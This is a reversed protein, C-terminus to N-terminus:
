LGKGEPPTFDRLNPYASADVPPTTSSGFLNLTRLKPCARADPPTELECGQLHLVELHPLPPLESWASAPVLWEQIELRVIASAFPKLKELLAPDLAKGEGRLQVELKASGQHLPQVILPLDKAAKKWAKMLQPDVPPTNTEDKTSPSQASPWHPARPDEGRWPGFDAGSSIWAHILKLEGKTLPTGKSPMIDDDDPDLASLTYLPSELPRGPVVAPGNDGGLSLAFASDLRLGGKPKRPRGKKVHPEHCEVCSRELIPWVEKQFDVGMLPLAVLAMLPVNM